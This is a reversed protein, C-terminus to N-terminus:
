QLVQVRHKYTDAVVMCEDILLLLPLLLLLLHLRLLQLNRSLIKSRSHLWQLLPLRGPIHVPAVATASRTVPAPAAAGFKFMTVQPVAASSAASSEALGQAVAAQMVSPRRVAKLIKRPAGAPVECDSSSGCADPNDKNIQKKGRKVANSEESM